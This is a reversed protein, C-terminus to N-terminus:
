KQQRMAPVHTSWRSSEAAIVTTGGAHDSVITICGIQTSAQRQAGLKLGPTSVRAYGLNPTRSLAAM